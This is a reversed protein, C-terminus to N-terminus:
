LRLSIANMLAIAPTLQCVYPRCRCRCPWCHRRCALMWDPQGARARHTNNYLVRFCQLFLFFFLWLVERILLSNTKNYRCLRSLREFAMHFMWARKARSHKKREKATAKKREWEGRESVVRHQQKQLTFGMRTFSRGWGRRGTSYSILLKGAIKRARCVKWGRSSWSSSWFVSFREASHTSHLLKEEKAFTQLCYFPSFNYVNRGEYCVSHPHQSLSNSYVILM